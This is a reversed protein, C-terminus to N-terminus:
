VRDVEKRTNIQVYPKCQPNYEKEIWEVLKGEQAQKLVPEVEAWGIAGLHFSSDWKKPIKTDTLRTSLFRMAVEIEHAYDIAPRAPEGDHSKLLMECFKIGEKIYAARDGTADPLKGRLDDLVWVLWATSGRKMGARMDPYSALVGPEILGFYFDEPKLEKKERRSPQEKDIAALVEMVNEHIKILQRETDETDCRIAISVKKAAEWYRKRDEPNKISFEPWLEPFKEQVLRDFDEQLVLSRDQLKTLRYDIIKNVSEVTALKREAKEMRIWAGISIVSAIIGFVAITHIMWEAM